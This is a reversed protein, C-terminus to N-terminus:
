KSFLTDSSRFISALLAEFINLGTVFIFSLAAVKFYNAEFIHHFAAFINFNAAFIFGLAAFRHL